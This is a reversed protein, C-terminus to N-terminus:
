GRGRLTPSHLDCDQAILTDRNLHVPFRPDLRRPVYLDDMLVPGLGQGSVSYTFCSQATRPTEIQRLNEARTQTEPM